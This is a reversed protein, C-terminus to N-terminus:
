DLLIECPSEVVRMGPLALDKDFQIDFAHLQPDVSGWSVKQKGDETWTHEFWAVNRRSDWFFNGTILIDGLDYKYAATALAEAFLQGSEIIANLLEVGPADNM